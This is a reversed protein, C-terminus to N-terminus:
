FSLASGDYICAGGTIYVRATMGKADWTRIVRRVASKSPLDNTEESAGQKNFMILTYTNKM